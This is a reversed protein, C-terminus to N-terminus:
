DNKIRLFHTSLNQFDTRVEDHKEFFDKYKLLLGAFHEKENSDILEHGKDQEMYFFITEIEVRFLHNMTYSKKELSRLIKRNHTRKAKVKHRTYDEFIRQRVTKNKEISDSVSKATLYWLQNNTM